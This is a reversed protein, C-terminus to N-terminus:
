PHDRHWNPGWPKHAQYTTVPPSPPWHAPIRQNCSPLLLALDGNLLRDARWDAAPRPGTVPLDIGRVHGITYASGALIVRQGSQMGLHRATVIHDRGHVRVLAGALHDASPHPHVIGTLDLLDSAAAAKM